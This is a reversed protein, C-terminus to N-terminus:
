PTAGPMPRDTLAALRRLVWDVEAPALGWAFAKARLGAAVQAQLQEGAWEPHEARKRATYKTLQLALDECM